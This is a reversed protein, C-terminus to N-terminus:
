LVNNEKQLCNNKFLYKEFISNKTEEVENVDCSCEFKDNVYFEYHEKVKVCKIKM